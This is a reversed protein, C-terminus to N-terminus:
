TMRETTQNSRVKRWRRNQGTRRRDRRVRIMLRRGSRRFEIRHVLGCDCCAIWKPARFWVDDDVPRYRPKRM